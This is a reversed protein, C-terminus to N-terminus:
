FGARQPPVLASQKCGVSKVGLCRVRQPESVHTAQGAEQVRQRSSQGGAAVGAQLSM